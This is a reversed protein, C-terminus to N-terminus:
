RIKFLWYANGVVACLIGWKGPLILALTLTGMVFGRALELKEIPINIHKVIDVGHKLPEIYTRPAPHNKRMYESLLM